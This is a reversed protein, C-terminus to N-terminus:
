TWHPMESAVSSNGLSNQGFFTIKSWKQVFFTRFDDFIATKSPNKAFIQFTSNEPRVRLIAWKPWFNVLIHILMMDVSIISSLVLSKFFYIKPVKKQWFFAWFSSKKSIKPGFFGWFSGMKWFEGGSGTKEGLLWRFDGWHGLFGDFIGYFMQYHGNLPTFGTLNEIHPVTPPNWWRSLWFHKCYYM